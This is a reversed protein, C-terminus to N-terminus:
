RLRNNAAAFDLVVCNGGKGQESSREQQQKPTREMEALCAEMTALYAAGATAMNGTTKAPTAHALVSAMLDKSERQYRCKPEKISRSSGQFAKIDVVNM